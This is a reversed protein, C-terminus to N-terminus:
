AAEAGLDFLEKVIGFVCHVSIMVYPLAHFGEGVIIVILHPCLGGM